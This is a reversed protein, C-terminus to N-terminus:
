WSRQRRRRMAQLRLCCKRFCRSWRQIRLMWATRLARWSAAASTESADASRASPGSGSRAVSGFGQSISSTAIPANTVTAAGACPTATSPAPNASMLIAQAAQIPLPGMRGCPRCFALSHTMKTPPSAQATTTAAPRMRWHSVWSTSAVAVAVGTVAPQTRGATVQAKRAKRPVATEVPATWMLQLSIPLRCSGRSPNIM